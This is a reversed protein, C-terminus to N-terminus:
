PGIAKVPHICYNARLWGQKRRQPILRGKPGAFMTVVSCSREPGISVHLPRDDGYFYLRDFAVNEEIWAALMGSHVGPVILDVAQGLRLCIPKGDRGLECGAHQDIVPCIRAHIHRTLSPSAFGYTLTPMGFVGAVPDLLASCLTRIAVFTEARKPVNDPHFQLWTEGVEIIDRYRFRRSCFADLDPVASLMDDTPPALQGRESQVYGIMM